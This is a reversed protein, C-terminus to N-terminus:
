QRNLVFRKSIRDVLTGDRLPRSHSVSHDQFGMKTYYSLGPVNDARITANIQAFGLKRAVWSTEAFLARGVGRVIREQRAFSAIDACDPPLDESVGLWQFGAVDGGADVAVHCCVHDSGTLYYARFLAESLPVEKATTGGAEIIDNLIRCSATVDEPMMPRVTLTM